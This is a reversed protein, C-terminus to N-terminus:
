LSALAYADIVHRCDFASRQNPLDVAWHVTNRQEGM